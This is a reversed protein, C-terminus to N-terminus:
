FTLSEVLKEIRFPLPSEFLMRKKRGVETIKAVVIPPRIQRQFGDSASLLVVLLRQLLELSEIAAFKTGCILEIVVQSDAVGGQGDFLVLEGALVPL